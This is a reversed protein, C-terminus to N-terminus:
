NREVRLHNNALLERTANLSGHFAVDHSSFGGLMYGVESLRTFAIHCRTEEEIRIISHKECWIMCDLLRTSSMSMNSALEQLSVQITQSQQEHQILRLESLIDLALKGKTSSSLRKLKDELSEGSNNDLITVNIHAPSLYGMKIRGMRELWYQGIKFDTFDHDFQGNAWLTNPVVIPYEKTKELPQIHSIYSNIAVRIEELNKWSLMNQLLQERAKKIDDKSCLCVTPIPNDTSFGVAKYMDENRGARGVEQLYDEMVSPPMLHVIYHINPIDMGMGFAKTACLIYLPDSEDKFRTYTEERDDCDM